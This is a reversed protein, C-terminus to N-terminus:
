FEDDELKSIPVKVIQNEDDTVFYDYRKFTGKDFYSWMKLRRDGFTGYRSKFIFECVNPLPIRNEGYGKRKTNFLPELIKMDKRLYSTPVVISGADLKFKMAKSGSLAGEDVYRMDKWSDNLQSGTLIGVNYDEAIMKLHSALDLLILDQRPVVANNKKFESSLESQVEMYDFCCYQIGEAEVKEKIKRELSQKTFRPMSTITLNSEAIIEGAKLVRAEEEKTLRGDVISRYEVGSIASYFMPQVETSVDQETAIFLTPSQYNRNPIFDQEEEDWIKTAGVCCLDAVSSRTKGSGSNGARLILHGRNWGNYLTSLYGSQMLAGFSPKVKFQDIFEQPNEGAKIEDRVYHIDYKTRLKNAKSEVDSLIDQITWKDLEQQAIQEDESEDYYSSIDIGQEKLERLLSFKRIIAYYYDFNDLSALEKVTSIFEAFNGDELTEKQAEYKSAFNDIEIESIDSCGTKAVAEGCVYLIRHMPIPTYDLKNLPYAPNTFLSPNKFLCGLSLAAINANYLM